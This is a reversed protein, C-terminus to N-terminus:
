TEVAGPRLGVAGAAALAADKAGLLVAGDYWTGDPRKMRFRYSFDVLGGRRGDAGYRTLTVSGDPNVVYM